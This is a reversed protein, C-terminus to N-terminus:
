FTRLMYELPSEEYLEQRRLLNEQDSMRNHISWQRMMQQPPVRYFRMAGYGPPPAPPPAPAYHYTPYNRPYPYWHYQSMSVSPLAALLLGVLLAVCCTVPKM